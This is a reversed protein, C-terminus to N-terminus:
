ACVLLFAGSVPPLQASTFPANIKPGNDPLSQQKLSGLSSAAAPAFVAIKGPCRIEFVIPLHCSPQNLFMGDDVGGGRCGLNKGLDLGAAQRELLDGEAGAGVSPTRQRHASSNARRTGASPWWFGGFAFFGFFFFFFFPTPAILTLQKGWLAHGLCTPRSRRNGNRRGAASNRRGIKMKLAVCNLTEGFWPPTTKEQDRETTEPDNAWRSTTGGPKSKASRLARVRANRGDIGAAVNRAQEDRKLDPRVVFCRVRVSRAPVPAPPAQAM